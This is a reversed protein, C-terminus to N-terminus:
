NGAARPPTAILAGMSWAVAFWAAVVALCGALVALPGAHQALAGGAAAGAFTGLFQVSSYVGTAAGRAGRPAARSVLAPLKAELVNFGAFFIVLAGAIGAVTHHTAALVVLSAGIAGISALFVPRDRMAAPGVVGPLMLVFGAAVTSLYVWWHEAAPLGARTLSVPVVVFLAMLVAHLAFIGVNLRALEPERLVGRFSAAPAARLVAPVDPVAFRVVAIAGLCLAGTLAFIGPIGISQSLFPGLVFSLGFMAGITSGIIAMVKTRQSDRTLDAALAIVTGSIAGAGQLARGLILVWPSEAVACLFSGGAMIALGAYIVPKRGWRDSLMGFPIQLTGQVLGYAGLALGVLTLNWAPRGEAWLAFVPLIVFMGFLRLAFVASLAVSARLETPSM